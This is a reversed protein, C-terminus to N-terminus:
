SMVPYLLRVGFFFFILRIYKFTVASYILHQLISHHTIVNKYIMDCWFGHIEIYAIHSSYEFYIAEDLSCNWNHTHTYLYIYLVLLLVVKRWPINFGLLSHVNAFNGFYYKLCLLISCQLLTIWNVSLLLLDPTITHDRYERSLFFNIFLLYSM